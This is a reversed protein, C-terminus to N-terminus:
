ANPLSSPTANAEPLPRRRETIWATIVATLLDEPVADLSEATIPLVVGDADSLNWEAILDVLAARTQDEDGSFFLRRQAATPNIRMRVWAGAYDETLRLDAWRVPPIYPPPTGATHGNAVPPAPQALETQM